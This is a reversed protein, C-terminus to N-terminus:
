KEKELNKFFARISKRNNGAYKVYLMLRAFMKPPLFARMDEAKLDEKGEIIESIKKAQKEQTREAKKMYKLKAEARAIEESANRVQGFMFREYLLFREERPLRDFKDLEGNFSNRIRPIYTIITQFKHKEPLENYHERAFPPAAETESPFYARRQLPAQEQLQELMNM